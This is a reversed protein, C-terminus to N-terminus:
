VSKLPFIYLGDAIRTSSSLFHHLFERKSQWIVKGSATVIETGLSYNPDRRNVAASDTNSRLILDVAAAPVPYTVSGYSELAFM